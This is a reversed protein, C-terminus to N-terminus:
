VSAKANDRGEQKVKISATIGAMASPFDEFSFKLLAKGEKDHRCEYDAILSAAVTILAM